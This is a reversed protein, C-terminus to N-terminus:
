NYTRFFLILSSLYRRVDCNSVNYQDFCTVYVAGLFSTPHWLCCTNSSFTHGYKSDGRHKTETDISGQTKRPAVLWSSGVQWHLLCFLHQKPKQTAIIGPPLCPLVTWSEQWSFGLSLSHGPSSCDMPNCHTPCSQLSKAHM